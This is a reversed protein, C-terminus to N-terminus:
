QEGGAGARNIHYAGGASTNFAWVSLHAAEQRKQVAVREGTGARTVAPESDQRWPSLFVCTLGAESLVAIAGVVGNSVSANVLFAGVARLNQFSADEHVPWVPFFRLFPENSRLLMDNIALAGGATEIGGGGQRLYGNPGMLSSVTKTLEGLIWSANLACGGACGVRAFAPFSEQFANMQNPETVHSLL